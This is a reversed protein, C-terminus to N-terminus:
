KNTETKYSSFKNWDTSVPLFSLSIISSNLIFGHFSPITKDEWIMFASCKYNVEIKCFKKEKM